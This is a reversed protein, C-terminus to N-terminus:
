TCRSVPHGANAYLIRSRATDAVLYFGTVFLTSESHKLIAHLSRNIKTLMMAPDAAAASFKEVLASIM